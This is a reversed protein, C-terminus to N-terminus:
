HLSLLGHLSKLSHKHCINCTDSVKLAKLRKHQDKEATTLKKTLFEKFVEEVMEDMKKKKKKEDGGDKEKM